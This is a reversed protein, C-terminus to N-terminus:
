VASAASAMASRMAARGPVSTRRTGTGSPSSSAPVRSMPASASASECSGRARTAPTTATVSPRRCSASAAGSSGAGNWTSRVPECSSQSRLSWTSPAGAKAIRSSSTISVTRMSSSPSAGSAAVAGSEIETSPPSGVVKSTGTPWSRSRGTIRGWPPRLTIRKSVGSASPSSVARLLAATIWIFPTRSRSRTSRTEPSGCGPSRM